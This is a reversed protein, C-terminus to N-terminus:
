ADGVEEGDWAQQGVAVEHREDGRGDGPAEDDVVPEAAPQVDALRGEDFSARVRVRTGSPDPGIPLVLRAHVPASGLPEALRFRLLATTGARVVLNGYEGDVAWGSATRLGDDEDSAIEARLVGDDLSPAGEFREDVRSPRGGRPEPSATRTDPDACAALLLLPTM